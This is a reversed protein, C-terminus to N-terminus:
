RRQLIVLTSIAAQALRRRFVHRDRNRFSISEFATQDAKMALHGPTVGTRRRGSESRQSLHRVPGQDLHELKEPTSGTMEFTQKEMAAIVEPKSMAANFEKNLRDVIPRPMNAPGVLAAWSTLSFGPVGAEVITPLNPMAKSRRPLMVALAKLKGDRIHPSSTGGSVIMM